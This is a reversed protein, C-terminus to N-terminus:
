HYPSWRSRCEKGVRREESRAMSSVWFKPVRCDADTSVIIDGQAAEIGLTLAHKKPSLESSREDIRIHKIFAYNEAAETLIGGTADSSRDNVFIIELKNMPYEQNVLDHILDPLNKEENGAAIM